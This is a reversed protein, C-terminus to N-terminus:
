SMLSEFIAMIQTKLHDIDINTSIVIIFSYPDMELGAIWFDTFRIFFESCTEKSRVLKTTSKLFNRMSSFNIRKDYGPKCYFKALAKGEYLQFGYIMDDPISTLALCKSKRLLTGLQDQNIGFGQSFEVSRVKFKADIFLVAAIQPNGHLYVYTAPFDINEFTEREIELDHRKNCQKCFFFLKVPENIYQQQEVSAPNAINEVM